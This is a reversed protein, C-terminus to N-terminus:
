ISDVRSSLHKFTILGDIVIAIADISDICDCSVVVFIFKYSFILFEFINRNQNIKKIKGMFFHAWESLSPTITMPSEAPAWKEIGGLYKL